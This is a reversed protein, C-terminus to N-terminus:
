IKNLQLWMICTLPVLVIAGLLFQAFGSAIGIFDTIDDFWTGFLFACALCIAILWKPRDKEKGNAFGFFCCVLVALCLITVM